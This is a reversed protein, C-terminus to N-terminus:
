NNDGAAARVVAVKTIFVSEEFVAPREVGEFNVLGQRFDVTQRAPVQIEQVVM